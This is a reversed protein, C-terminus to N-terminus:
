PRFKPKNVLRAKESKVKAAEEEGAVRAANRQPAEQDDLKKAELTAAEAPAELTKMVGVLRFTPGYSSHMLDFRYQSDQWQALVEQQSGYAEPAVKVPAAPTTPPGYTMSIADVFDGATLGETEYRDYDVVIRFLKGDYFSFVVEKVPETQSSAGLPQPRWELEQILAPRSYIVKVQSMNAGARKAVSLLDTGLEFNRYKSLDGALTAGPMAGCLLFSLLASRLLMRGGTRHRTGGSPNAPHCEDLPKVAPIVWSSQLEGSEHSVPM